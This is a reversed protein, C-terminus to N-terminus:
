LVRRAGVYKPGWYSSYLNAVHVGYSTTASIFRNDGIYIGVHSTTKGVTRFFVLDGPQLERVHDGVTYMERSTRPLEVGHQRYVYQVFGSCDFGDPKTGGWVYPVGLYDEVTDVILNSTAPVTQVAPIHSQGDTAVLATGTEEDWRAAHGLWRIVSAYPVTFRGAEVKPEAELLEPLGDASATISGEFLDLQKNGKRLTVHAAPSYFGGANFGVEVQVGLAEALPRVPVILRGEANVYPQLDPFALVTDNVQVYVAAKPDPSRIGDGAAGYAPVPQMAAFGAAILVARVLKKHPLVIRKM